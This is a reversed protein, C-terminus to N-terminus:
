DKDPDCEDEAHFVELNVRGPKEALRECSAIAAHAKSASLDLNSDWSQWPGAMHDQALGEEPDTGENTFCPM